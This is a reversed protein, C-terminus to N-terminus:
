ELSKLDNIYLYLFVCLHCSKLLLHCSKLLFGVLPSEIKISSVSDAYLHLTKYVNV